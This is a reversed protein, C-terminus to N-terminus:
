STTSAVCELSDLRSLWNAWPMLRRLEGSLTGATGTLRGVQSDLLDTTKQASVLAADFLIAADAAEKLMAAIPISIFATALFSVGQLAQGMQRLGVGLNTIPTMLLGLSTGFQSATKSAGKATKQVGQMAKQTKNLGGVAGQSQSGITIIIQPSQPPM